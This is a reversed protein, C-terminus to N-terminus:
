QKTEKGAKLMADLMQETTKQNVTLQILELRKVRMRHNIKRKAANPKKSM